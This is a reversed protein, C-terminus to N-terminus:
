PHRAEILEQALIDDKGIAYDGTVVDLVLFDGKHNPEVITKIHAAYLEKGKAAIEAATM